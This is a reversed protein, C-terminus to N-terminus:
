LDDERGFRPDHACDLPDVNLDILAFADRDDTLAAAALADRREGHHLQEGRRGGNGADVLEDEAADIDLIQGVLLHLFHAALVDGHDKLVRQSREIGDHRHPPLNVLDEERVSFLMEAVFRSFSQGTKGAFLLRLAAGDLRELQDADAIRFQAVLCIRM